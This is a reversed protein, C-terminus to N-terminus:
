MSQSRKEGGTFFRNVNVPAQELATTIKDSLDSMRCVLAGVEDPDNSQISHEYCYDFEAKFRAIHSFSVQKSM